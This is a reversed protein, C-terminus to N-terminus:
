RSLPQARFADAMRQLTKLPVEGVLTLRVAPQERLLTHTAGQRIAREASALAGAQLPEYFVSVSALGDSFVWQLPKGALPSTQEAPLQARLPVFGPVADQLRLGWQAVDVLRTRLEHVTYGPKPQMQAKLTANVFTAPTELATFASQELVVAKDPDVTQQKLMLGTAADRWIRYGWRWGDEPVVEVVHALRGAIRDDPLLQLRYHGDVSQALRGDLAPFVGLDYRQESVWTKTQPSVTIVQDGRRFTTRAEGTLVDVREVVQGAMVGHAIQATAMQDDVSIVLTGQYAHHLPARHLDALWAAVVGQAAHASSAVLCVFLWLGHLGARRMM